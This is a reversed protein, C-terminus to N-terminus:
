VKQVVAFPAMIDTSTVARAFIDTSWNNKAGNNTGNKKTQEFVRSPCGGDTYIGQILSFIPGVMIVM